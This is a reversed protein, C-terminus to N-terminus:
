LFLFMATISGWFLCRTFPFRSKIKGKKVVFTKAYLVVSYAMASVLGSVMTAVWTSPSVNLLVCFQVMLYLLADGFRYAFTGLLLNCLMVAGAFFLKSGEENRLWDPIRLLVMVGTAFVGVMMYGARFMGTQRDTGSTVGFVIYFMGFSLVRVLIHHEAPFPPAILVAGLLMWYCTSFIQNKQLTFTNDGRAAEKKLFIVTVVSTVVGFLLNYIGNLSVVRGARMRLQLMIFEYLLAIM